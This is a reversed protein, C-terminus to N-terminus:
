YFVKGILNDTLEGTGGSLLGKSNKGSYSEDMYQGEYARVDPTPTIYQLLVGKNIVPEDKFGM